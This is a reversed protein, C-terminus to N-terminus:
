YGISPESLHHRVILGINHRDLTKGTMVIMALREANNDSTPRDVTVPGLASVDQVMRFMAFQHQEHDRDPGSLSPIATVLDLINPQFDTPSTCM